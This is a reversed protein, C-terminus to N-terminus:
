LRSKKTRRKTRNARITKKTRPVEFDVKNKRTGTIGKRASSQRETDSKTRSSRTRASGQRQSGLKTKKTSAQPEPTSYKPYDTELFPRTKRIEEPSIKRGKVQEAYKKYIEENKPILATYHNNTRNSMFIINHEKEKDLELPEFVTFHKKDRHYPSDM